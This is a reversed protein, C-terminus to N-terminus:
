HDKFIKLLDQHHTKTDVKTMIHIIKGKEDILYTQRLIGMFERGMFKKLGWCGYKECVQHDVDSLLLFNLKQKEEFQKLKKVPDASIGLVVINENKLETKSDRVGCAQVTCGPTMAKPYFYIVVKQGKFDNLSVQSGNQDPLSFDPAMSGIALGGALGKKTTQKKVTTKVAKKETKKTVKKMVKKTTKKTVKKTM